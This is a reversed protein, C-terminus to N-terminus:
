LDEDWEEERKGRLLHERGLWVDRKGSDKLIELILHMKEWQPWLLCVYTEAVYTGPGRAL